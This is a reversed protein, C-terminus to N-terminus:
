VAVLESRGNPELRPGQHAGIGGGVWRGHELPEERLRRDRATDDMM